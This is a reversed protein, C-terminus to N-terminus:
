DGVCANVMMIIGALHSLVGVLQAGFGLEHTNAVAIGVVFAILGAIFLAKSM